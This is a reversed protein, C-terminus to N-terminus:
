QAPIEGAVKDKTDEDKKDGEAADLMKFAPGVILPSYGEGIVKKLLVIEKAKYAEDPDGKVIRTALDYRMVKEEGTMKAQPDMSMLANCAVSKLTIPNREDKEGDRPEPGDLMIKDPEMLQMFPQSFDVRVTPEKRGM